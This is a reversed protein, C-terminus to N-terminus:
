NGVAAVSTSAGKVAAPEPGIGTSYSSMHESEEEALAARRGVGFVYGLFILEALLGVGIRLPDPLQSPTVFGEILGSVFLVVALGVAIVATARGQHALAQVRSRRGPDVLTWGLKLGAGGAVFIATLELMGHPLIFTFFSELRGAHGMLGATIGLNVANMVLVYVAPLMLFGTFLALAAVWANNTWVQAAFADNPHESYYSEFAGGPGTLEPSNEPLGLTRRAHSSEAVWWALATSGLLFAAAVGVWWGWARYVALPFRHTFFYGIEKGIETRASLVRGRARTLMASLGAILEADAGQTQLAALQQSTVRYLRVLEDTEAGSLRKRRTALQDLREWSQRHVYTYADLDM